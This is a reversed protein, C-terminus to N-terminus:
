ETPTLALFAAAAIRFGHQVDGGTHPLESGGEVALSRQDSAAAVDVVDSEVLVEVELLEHPLGDRQLTSRGVHGKATSPRGTVDM